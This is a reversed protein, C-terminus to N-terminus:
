KLFCLEGTNESNLGGKIQNSNHMPINKWIKMINMRIVQCKHWQTDEKFPVKM